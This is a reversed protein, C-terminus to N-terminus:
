SVLQQKEILKIREEELEKILSKLYDLEEQLEHKRLETRVPSRWNM